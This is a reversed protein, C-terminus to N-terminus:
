AMERCCFLPSLIWQSPGFSHWHIHFFNSLAIIRFQDSWQTPIAAVWKLGKTQMRYHSTKILIKSTQCIWILEHFVRNVGFHRVSCYLSMCGSFCRRQIEMRPSNVSSSQIVHLIIGLNLPTHESLQIGASLQLTWRHTHELLFTRTRQFIPLHRHHSWLGHCWDWWTAFFTKSRQKTQPKNGDVASSRLIGWGATQLIPSAHEIM